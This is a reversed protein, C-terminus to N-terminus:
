SNLTIPLTTQQERFAMNFIHLGLKPNVCNSLVKSKLVKKCNIDKLNIKLNNQMYEIRGDMSVRILGRKEKDLNDIHFNTWFYHNGSIYPKKLPKYYSIVNEVCFIGKFWTSLFIIEEYLKMDPYRPKMNQEVKLFNMRSHTPCPPSTWIFNFENYHELLYKHADGIIVEDNPYFSKYIKAIEPNIEVATVEIKDNPWLKRNGGIGAYLNLVKIM